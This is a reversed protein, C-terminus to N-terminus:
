ILHAHSVRTHTHTIEWVSKVYDIVFKFNLMSYEFDFFDFM